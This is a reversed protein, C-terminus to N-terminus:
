AVASLIQTILAIVQQGAQANPDTPSASENAANKGAQAALPNAAPDAGPVNGFEKGFRAKQRQTEGELTSFGGMNERKARSSKAREEARATAEDAGGQKERSYGKIKGEKEKDKDDLNKKADVMATAKKLADDETLGADEMLRNMQEQIAAKRELEATLEKNGAIQANIIELEQNFLDIAKKQDDAKEAKRKAEEAADKAEDAAKKEAETKSDLIDKDADRIQKKLGLIDTEIQIRQEDPGIGTQGPGVLGAKQSELDMIMRTLELRKLNPPLISLYDQMRKESLQQEADLLKNLDRQAAARAKLDDSGSGGSGGSSGKSESSTTTIQKGSADFKKAPGFKAFAEESAGQDSLGRNYDQVSTDEYGLMKGIGTGVGQTLGVRVKNAEALFGVLFKTAIGAGEGIDAFLQKNDELVASLDKAGQVGQGFLGETLAGAAKDIASSLSSFAVGATDGADGLTGIKGILFDYLKGAKEAKAVDESKINLVKALTSDSGINGSVISRMEQALQEAPINANALANAFKGVLAINQEVSIGAAQASGLTALFGDVLGTLSAATQPELDVMAQMADSAEKKAAEASLGKFQRLVNSIAIESDGITQNFEMGRKVLLGFGATGALGAIANGSGAFAKSFGGQSQLQDRFKKAEGRAKALQEQYQAIDLRLSAELSASM